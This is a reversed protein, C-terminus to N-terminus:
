KMSTQFDKPISRVFTVKKHADVSILLFGSLYQDSTISIARCVDSALILRQWVIIPLFWDASDSGAEPTMYEQMCHASM